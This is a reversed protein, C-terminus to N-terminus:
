VGDGAPHNSLFSASAEKVREFNMRLIDVGSVQIVKKNKPLIDSFAKRKM